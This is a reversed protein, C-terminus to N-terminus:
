ASERGRERLERRLEEIASRVQRLNPNIALARELYVIAREPRDLQIYIMGYGSLAGFHDPNRKMVEDCDALSKDFEGLLYYITARKNWAEAFEPKLEIIRTFTEVARRLMRSGMEAVGEVFLTDIRPDGSRGWVQWLSNEAMARVLQDDDRLAAVLWPQDATTGTEGLTRVAERRAEPDTPNQLAQLADERTMAGARAPIATPTAVVLLGLALVSAFTRDIATM